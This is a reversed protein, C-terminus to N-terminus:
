CGKRIKRRGHFSKITWILKEMQDQNLVNDIMAKSSGILMANARSCLTESILIVPKNIANAYGAEFATGTDDGDILAIIIDCEVLLQLCKEMVQKSMLLKTEIDCEINPTHDFPDIIVIEKIMKNHEFTHGIMKLFVKKFESQKGTFCPHAFYVKM